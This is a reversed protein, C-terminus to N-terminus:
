EATFCLLSKTEYLMFVLSNLTIEASIANSASYNILFKFVPRLLEDQKKKYNKTFKVLKKMYSASIQM